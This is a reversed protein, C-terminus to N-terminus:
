ISPEVHARQGEMEQGYWPVCKDLHTLAAKERTVINKLVKYKLFSAQM